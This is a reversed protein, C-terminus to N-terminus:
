VSVNPSLDLRGGRPLTASLEVILWNGGLKVADGAVTASGRPGHLPFNFRVHQRGEDTYFHYHAESERYQIPLGLAAEFTLNGTAQEVSVKYIHDFTSARDRGQFQWLYLATAALAALVIVLARRLLRELRGTRAM